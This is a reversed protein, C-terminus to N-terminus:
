SRERKRFHEMRRIGSCLRLDDAGFKLSDPTGFDIYQEAKKNEGAIEESNRIHVAKGSVGDVFEVNGNIKGQMNNVTDVANDEDFSVDLVQKVSSEEQGGAESLLTQVQEESLVEKYVSVEDIYGNQLGYDGTGDAGITFDAVDISNQQDSIDVQAAGNGYGNGNASQRGDIYLTMKGDRDFTGTIFHWKGDTIESFRDTEKRGDGGARYNMNIGQNM